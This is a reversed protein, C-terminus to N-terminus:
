TIPPRYISFELRSRYAASESQRLVILAHSSIPTALMRPLPSVLNQAVCSGMSMLCESGDCVGTGGDHMECDVCEATSDAHGSDAMAFGQLPMMVICLMLLLTLFTKKRPM